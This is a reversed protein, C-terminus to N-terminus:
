KIWTLFNIKEITRLSPWFICATWNHLAGDLSLYKLAVNRCCKNHHQTPYWKPYRYWCRWSSHTQSYSSDKCDGRLTSWHSGGQGHYRINHGNINPYSGDSIAPFLGSTLKFHVINLIDNHIAYTNAATTSYATALKILFGSISRNALRTKGIENEKSLFTKMRGHNMFLRTELSIWGEFIFNHSIFVKLPM